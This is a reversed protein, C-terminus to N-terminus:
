FIHIKDIYYLLYFWCTTKNVVETLMASINQELTSYGDTYSLFM